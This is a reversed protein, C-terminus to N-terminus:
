SDYIHHLLFYFMKQLIWAGLFVIVSSKKYLKRVAVLKMQVACSWEFHKIYFM